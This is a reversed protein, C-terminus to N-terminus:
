PLAQEGADGQQLLPPSRGFQLEALIDGLRGGALQQLAHQLAPALAASRSSFQALRGAAAAAENGAEVGHM